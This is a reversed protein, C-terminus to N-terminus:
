GETSETTTEVKKIPTILVNRVHQYRKNLVKAIDGRSMGQSDFHRIAKSVGGHEKILEVAKSGDLPVAVTVVEEQAVAVQENKKTKSM